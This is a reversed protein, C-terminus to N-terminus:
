RAGGLSELLAEQAASQIAGPRVWRVLRIAGDAAMGEEILMAAAITGARGLGAMCHVLVDEGAALWGRIQACLARASAAGPAEFDEIPAHHLRMGAAEVAARRAAITEPPDHFALEFAEQLCVVHRIGAARLGPLADAEPSASIALRGPHPLEPIWCLM